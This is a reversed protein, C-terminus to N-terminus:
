MILTNYSVASIIDLHKEWENIDLLLNGPIQGEGKQLVVMLLGHEEMAEEVLEEFADERETLLYFFNLDKMLLEAIRIVQYAPRNEDDVLALELEKRSIGSERRLYTVIEPTKTIYLLFSKREEQATSCPIEEKRRFRALLKQFLGM